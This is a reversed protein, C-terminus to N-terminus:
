VPEAGSGTGPGPSASSRTRRTPMQPPSVQMNVLPMEIMADGPAADDAVLDERFDHRRRRADTEALAVPDDDFGQDEAPGAARAPHARAIQAVLQLHQADIRRAAHLLVPRHGSRAKEPDRVREAVVVGCEDLGKSDGSVVNPARLDLAAVGDHDEATTGDAAEDREDTAM